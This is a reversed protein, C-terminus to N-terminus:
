KKAKERGTEIMEGNKLERAVIEGSELNTEIEKFLVLEGSEWRYFNEYYAYASGRNASRIIKNEADAEINAVDSLAPSHGYRKEDDDWLWCLYPINPGMTVFAQIRIDARGDFNMDEVTLELAGRGACSAYDGRGAESTDITQILEGSKADKVRITKTVCGEGPIEASDLEFFVDPVASDSPAKVVVAPTEEADEKDKAAASFGGAAIEGAEEPTEAARWELLKYTKKGDYTHPAIQAAHYGKADFMKATAPKWTKKPTYFLPISKSDPDKQYNENDGYDGVIASLTGDGNDRLELAQSGAFWPSGEFVDDWYYKGDRYLVFDGGDQATIKEAGFYKKVTANVHKPEIYYDSNADHKFLGANNIVNHRVAFEILTKDDYDGASFDELYTESFNSFFINLARWDKDPMSDLMNGSQKPAALASATFALIALILIGRAFKKM